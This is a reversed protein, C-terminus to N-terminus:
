KDFYDRRYNNEWKKYDIHWRITFLKYVFFLVLATFIIFTVQGFIIPVAPFYAIMVNEVSKAIVAVSLVVSGMISFVAILVLGLFISKDEKEM